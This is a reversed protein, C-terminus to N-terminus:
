YNSNITFKPWYKPLVGDWQVNLTDAYDKIKMLLESTKQNDDPSFLVTGDLFTRNSNLIFSGSDNSGVISFQLNNENDLVWLENYNGRKQLIPKGDQIYGVAQLHRNFGYTKIKCDLLSKHVMELHPDIEEIFKEIRAKDDLFNPNWINFSRENIDFDFFINIKEKEQKYIESNKFSIQELKDFFAYCLVLKLYKNIKPDNKINNVETILLNELDFKSVSKLNKIFKKYYDVYYPNAGEKWEKIDESENLRKLNRMIAYEHTNIPKIDWFGDKNPSLQVKLDTNDYLVLTAEIDGNSIGVKKLRNRVFEYIENDYGKFAWVKKKMISDNQMRQLKNIVNDFNEKLRKLYHLYDSLEPEWINMSTNSSYELLSAINTITSNEPSFNELLVASKYAPIMDVIKKIEQCKPFENFLKVFENLDRDYNSFVLANKFINNLARKYNKNKIEGKQLNKKFLTLYDSFEKETKKALEKDKIKITKLRYLNFEFKKVKESYEDWNFVSDLNNLEDSIKFLSTILQNYETEKQYEINSIYEDRDVIIQQLALKEQETKVTKELKEIISNIGNTGNKFNNDKIKEAKDLLGKVIARRAKEAAFLKEVKDERKKIEPHSNYINIHEKKLKKIVKDALIVNENKIANDVAKIFNEYHKKQNQLYLVYVSISILIVIVSVVGIMKFTFKRKREIDFNDKIEYYRNIIRKPIDEDFSELKHFLNDIGIEGTAENLKEELSSLTEKYDKKQKKEATQIAFWEKAEEIQMTESANPLFENNNIFNDWTNVAQKLEKYDLMSYADSINSILVQAQEKLKNYHFVQLADKLRKLLENPLQVSWGEETLESYAIQIAIEDNELLSSEAKKILSKLHVKELKILSEGWSPTASDLIKIRRLLRIKDEISGKRVIKRYANVLPQLVMSESYADNLLEIIDNAVEPPEPLSLQQCLTRWENLRPFNVKSAVELIPPQMEAYNIAELARNNRLLEACRDLRSNLQIVIDQFQKAINRESPTISNPSDLIRQVAIIIKEEKLM